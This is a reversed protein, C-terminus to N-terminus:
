KEFYWFLHYVKCVEEFGMRKYVNYGMESAHLIIIEYGREKADEAAALTIATGIRKGRAKELTGVAYIGAVGEKYFVLSVAVPKREYYGLFASYSDNNKHELLHPFFGLASDKPAKYSELLVEDWVAFQDKNVVRIIEFNKIEASKPLDKVNVYMGPLTNKTFGYKSVLLNTLTSPKTLEGTRWGFSLNREKFYKIVEEIKEELFEESLNISYVANLYALTWGSNLISYESTKVCKIKSDELEREKEGYFLYM